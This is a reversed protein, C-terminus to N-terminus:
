VSGQSRDVLIMRLSEIVDSNRAMVKAMEGSMALLSNFREKADERLEEREELHEKRWEDREIRHGKLTKWIFWGLALAVVGLTGQDLLM